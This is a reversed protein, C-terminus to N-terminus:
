DGSQGDGAARRAYRLALSSHSAGGRSNNSRVHTKADSFESPTAATPLPSPSSQRAHAVAFADEFYKINRPPGDRKSAIMARAVDLMMTRQWGRNLMMQVRMAPGESIWGTPLIKPDHGAITALESAIAHADESIMPAERASVDVVASDPDNHARTHTPVGHGDMPPCGQGDHSPVPTSVPPCREDREQDEVEFESPGIEPDDRDMIVRYAHCAHPRGSATSAKVEVWGAEVLRALARQVTARGCDLESAITGQSLFCWGLKNTFTGLYALVRLDGREIRDDTVAGAPIISYRPKTM